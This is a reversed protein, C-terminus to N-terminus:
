TLTPKDDLIRPAMLLSTVPSAASWWKTIALPVQLQQGQQSEIVPGQSADLRFFM